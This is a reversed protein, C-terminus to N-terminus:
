REGTMQWKDDTMQWRGDELQGRDDLFPLLWSASNKNGISNKQTIINGIIHKQTINNGM